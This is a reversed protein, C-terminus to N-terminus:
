ALAKLREGLQTRRQRLDALKDRERQVVPAPAREAFPGALQKESRAIMVRVQDLEKRLRASEADFDILGALPLYCTVGGVVISSVQDPPDIERAIALEDGDLRAMQVLADRQGDILNAQDGASILAVIRQGPQVKYESRVNRISRILDIILSMESEADADLAGAAPWNAIMLAESWGDPPAFRDGAADKLHGWTEETVFPIFPHLLRLTQDLVHSLTKGASYAAMGGQEIQAKAIEIYWDAFESWFFEYLQRGAEGYQYSEFLRTVEGM